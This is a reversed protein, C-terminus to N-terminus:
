RGLNLLEELMEDAVKVLRAAAAYAQQHEILHVMEEDLNVGGVNQRQAELHGVLADQSAAQNGADRTAIGLSGILGSFYGGLTNAPGAAVPPSSPGGATVGPIPVLLTRLQGLRLLISNDGPATSWGSALLTPDAVVAPNLAISGATVGTPDFLPAV